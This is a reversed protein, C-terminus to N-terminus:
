KKYAEIGKKLRLLGEQLISRPTAVNIRIFTKGAEGYTLGSSVYVKAKEILFKVLDDSDNTVKSMDVWVLYTSDGKIPKIDPINEDIYKYLFDRNDFIYDLVQDLWDRSDNYAAIPVLYSFITGDSVNENNIQRSVKERLEQNKIVIMSTRIGALNFSKTPAILMIANDLYKDNLTFYPTYKLGPKVIDCHIEDSIVLVNNKKCLKAIEELEDKSWINGTPNHPNSLVLIKSKPDELEKNLLDFDISYEYNKYTLPVEAVVRNNNRIVKLFTYYVPTLLVVKDGESTYVRMISEISAIVGLSFLMNEREIKIGYRDNYFNIYANYLEDKPETYGFIPHKIRDEMIKIIPSSVTFDMDAVWLPITDKYLDWKVSDTNKRSIIKDFDYKM